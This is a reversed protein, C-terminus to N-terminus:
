IDLKRTTQKYVGVVGSVIGVPALTRRIKAFQAKSFTTCGIRYRRADFITLLKGSSCVSTKLRQIRIGEYIGFAPRLAKRFDAATVYWIGDFYRPNKVEILRQPTLEFKKGNATIIM